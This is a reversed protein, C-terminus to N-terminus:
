TSGVRFKGKDHGSLFYCHRPSVGLLERPVIRAKGVYPCVSVLVTETTKTVVEVWLVIGWSLVHYVEYSPAPTCSVCPGINEWFEEVNDGVEKRVVGDQVFWVM